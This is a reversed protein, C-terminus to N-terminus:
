EADPHTIAVVAELVEDTARDWNYRALVALMRQRRVTAEIEPTLPEAKFPGWKDPARITLDPNLVYTGDGLVYRGSPTIRAIAYIGPIGWSHKIALKDGVKLNHKKESMSLGSRERRPTLPNPIGPLGRVPPPLSGPQ